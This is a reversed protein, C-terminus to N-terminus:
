SGLKMKVLPHTKDILRALHDVSLHTYKETAQLSEHGLLQQLVRLNTGSALLHTAYSHRLAHPHLPSMLGAAAGLKRILEFGARPNMPENGLVFKEGSNKGLENEFHQICFSPLMAYREKNGKGLVLIKQESIQINKWQLQCAESIRLGAGYLLLFLSKQRSSEPPASNLYKLISIVEDVSLFHPLKRPVKPCVLQHAHNTETMKQEYLWNFFSKLTAIKRNRSALSLHGWSSLCARAEDWIQQTNKISNQKNGFAQKLDLTYAKITLDSFSNINKQYKLYKHILDELDCVM